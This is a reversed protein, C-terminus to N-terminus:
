KPVSPTGPSVLVRGHELKVNAGPYLALVKGLERKFAQQFNTKGRPNTAYGSGFQHQLQSWTIYTAKKIYSTRYTLWLYIDIAMPSNKIARLIRMDLPVPHATIERYFEDTLVIANEWLQTQDPDRGTWLSFESTMPAHRVVFGQGQGDDYRITVVSSFLREIQSLVRTTSGRKGGSPVIDLKRLYQNLSAGLGLRKSKTLLAETTVWAMVLRPSSGYPIGTGLPASVVMQLNGNKRIYYNTKPDKHPLGAQSMLRAAFGIEGADQVRTGQIEVAANILKESADSVSAMDYRASISHATPKAFLM